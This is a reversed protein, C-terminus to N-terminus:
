KLLIWDTEKQIVENWGKNFSIVIKLKVYHNKLNAYNLKTYMETGALVEMLQLRKVYKFRPQISIQNEGPIVSSRFIRNHVYGDPFTKSTSEVVMAASAIQVNLSHPYQYSSNQIEFIKHQGLVPSIYADEIGLSNQIWVPVDNKNELVIEIQQNESNLHISLEMNRKVDDNMANVKGVLFIIFFGYLIKM